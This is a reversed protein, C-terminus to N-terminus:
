RLSQVLIPLRAPQFPEGTLVLSQLQNIALQPSIRGALLLYIIKSVPEQNQQDFPVTKILYALGECVMGLNEEISRDLPPLPTIADNLRVSRPNHGCALHMYYIYDAYAELPSHDIVLFRGGQDLSGCEWCHFPEGIQVAIPASEMKILNREQM